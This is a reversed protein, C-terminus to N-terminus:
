PGAGMARAEPRAMFGARHGPHQGRFRDPVLRDFPQGILEARTYGFLREMEANALIIEGRADVMVIANPSSEFAIQFKEEIQRRQTVDRGFISVGVINGRGDRIPSASKSVSIKKGERSIRVTDYDKVHEGRRVAALIEEAESVGEEPVILRINQGLAEQETYGYLHEAARNWTTITGDLTLSIIAEHSGEVIAALVQGRLWRELNEAGPPAISSVGAGRGVRLAESLQSPYPSDPLRASSMFGVIAGVVGELGAVPKVFYAAAQLEYARKVDTVANSSTLIVVPIQRLEPERKIESLVELGTKRPLKLDLLIFDPLRGAAARGTRRLFDLAKVGDDEVHLDVKVAADKLAHQILTIDGRNDEVLL